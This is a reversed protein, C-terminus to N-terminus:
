ESAMILAGSILFLAIAPGIAGFVLCVLAVWGLVDGIFGIM